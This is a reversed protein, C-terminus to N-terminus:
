HVELFSLRPFHMRSQRHVGIFSQQFIALPEAKVFLLEIILAMTQRQSSTIETEGKITEVGSPLTKVIYRNFIAAKRKSSIVSTSHCEEFKNFKTTFSLSVPHHAHM